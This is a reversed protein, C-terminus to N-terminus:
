ALEFAVAAHPDLAHAGELGPMGDVIADGGLHEEILRSVIAFRRPLVKMLFKAVYVCYATPELGVEDNRGRTEESDEVDEIEPGLWAKRYSKALENLPDFDGGGLLYTLRDNAERSLVRLPTDLFEVREADWSTCVFFLHEM